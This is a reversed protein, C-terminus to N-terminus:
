DAVGPAQFIGKAEDIAEPLEATIADIQEQTLGMFSLIAPDIEMQPPIDHAFGMGLNGAIHDAICTLCALARSKEPLDMPHHHYGTVFQFSQPFKWLKCLGAGFQEHNAGSCGRRPRM